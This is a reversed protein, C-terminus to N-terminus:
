TANRYSFDQELKLICNSSIPDTFLYEIYHIIHISCSLKKERKNLNGHTFIFITLLQDQWDYMDSERSKPQLGYNETKVNKNQKYNVNTLFSWFCHKWSAFMDAEGDVSRTIFPRIKLKWGLSFPQSFEMWHRWFPLMGLCQWQSTWGFFTLGLTKVGSSLDPAWPACGLRLLGAIDGGSAFWWWWQWRWKYGTTRWSCAYWSM